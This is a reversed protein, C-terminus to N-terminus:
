LRDGYPMSKIYEEMQGWDPAGEFTAPLKIMTRKMNDLTWKRGYSYRYKENRLVSCVFLGVAPNLKGYEPRLYLVNVDDTAWYPLPQYFAEGVSGNYSLSITNGEHIPSQGILNSVGNNSDIAGIYPTFGDTQDEATLRKGKRIDFLGSEGGLQFWKWNNPDISPGLKKNKTTLPESRLLGIYSDMWEWDPDGELTSPLKIVTQRYLTETVKRGYNYKFRNAMLLTQLFLYVNRTKANSDKVLLIKASDGVVCGQEHFSVFGATGSRAVTLCPEECYSYGKDQCYAKDIYGIVGNNGEGSQVAEFTGPNNEIEESTIGKGNIIEIIDELLFNKWSSMDIKM